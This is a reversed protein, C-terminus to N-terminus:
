CELKFKRNVPQVDSEDHPIPNTDDSADDQRQGFAQMALSVQAHSSLKPKM